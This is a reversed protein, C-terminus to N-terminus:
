KIEIIVDDAMVVLTEGSSLSIDAIKISNGTSETTRLYNVPPQGDELLRYVYSRFDNRSLNKCIEDGTKRDIEYEIPVLEWENGNFVEITIM